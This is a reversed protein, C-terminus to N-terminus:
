TSTPDPKGGMVWGVVTYCKSSSQMFVKDSMCMHLCCVESEAPTLLSCTAPEETPRCVVKSTHLVPRAHEITNLLGLSGDLFGNCLGIVM